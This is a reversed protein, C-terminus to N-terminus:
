QKFVALSVRNLDLERAASAKRPAPALPMPFETPGVISAAGRGIAFRRADNSDVGSDRSDAEPEREFVSSPAPSAAAFASFSGINNTVQRCVQQKHAHSDM